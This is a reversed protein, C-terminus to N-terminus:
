SRDLLVWVLSASGCREVSCWAILLADVLVRLGLVSFRRRPLQKRFGSPGANMTSPTRSDRWFGRNRGRLAAAEALARHRFEEACLGSRHQGLIM